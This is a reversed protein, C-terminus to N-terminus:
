WNTASDNTPMSVSLGNTRLMNGDGLYKQTFVRAGAAQAVEVTHDSSESDVVVVEDCVRQLSRIAAEINNEENLTTIIGSIQKM